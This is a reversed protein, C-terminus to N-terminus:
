FVTYLVPRPHISKLHNKLFTNELNWDLFAYMNFLNMYKKLMQMWKCLRSRQLTSRSCDILFFIWRFIMLLFLFILFSTRFHSLRSYNKLSSIQQFLALFKPRYEWSDLLFSFRPSTKLIWWKYYFTYWKTLLSTIEGLKWPSNTVQTKIYLVNLLTSSSKM